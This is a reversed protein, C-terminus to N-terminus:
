AVAPVGVPRDQDVRGALPVGEELTGLAALEVQRSGRTAARRDVFADAAEGARGVPAPPDGSGQGNGVQRGSRPASGVEDVTADPERGEARARRQLEEESRFRERWRRRSFVHSLDM